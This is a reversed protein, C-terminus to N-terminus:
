GGPAVGVAGASPPAIPAAADRDDAARDLPVVVVVEIEVEDYVRLLGGRETGVGYDTRRLTVLGRVRRAPRDVIEFRMPLTRTVGHLELAVEAAFAEGDLRVARLRVTATPYRAVDLFDDSRLHRDRVSNGTDLSAVDIEVDVESRAPDQDDIVARTLRWRGFTGKVPGLSVRGRFGITGPPAADSPAAPASTSAAWALALAVLAHPLVSRM